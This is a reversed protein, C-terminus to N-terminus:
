AMGTDPRLNELLQSFAEYGGASAGVGVIIFPRTRKAIQGWDKEASEVNLHTKKANAHVIEAAEHIADASKYLSKSKKEAREAQEHALAAHKALSHIRGGPSPRPSQKKRKGPGSNISKRKM